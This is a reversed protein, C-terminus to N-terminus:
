SWFRKVGTSSWPTHDAESWPWKVGAYTNQCGNLTFCQPVWCGYIPFLDRSGALFWVMIGQISVKYSKKTTWGLALWSLEPILVLKCNLRSKLDIDYFRSSNLSKFGTSWIHAYHGTGFVGSSSIDPTHCTLSRPIIRM